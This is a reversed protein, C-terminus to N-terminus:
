PIPYEYDSTQKYTASKLIGEEEHLSRAWAQEEATWERLDYFGLDETMADRDTDV